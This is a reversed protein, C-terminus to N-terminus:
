LSYKVHLGIYFNRGNGPYFYRPQNGGFGVANILVSQAYNTDFINNIGVNFQTELIPSLKPTFYIKTHFINYADSYVTNADDLPIEAVYNHNLYWGFKHLHQLSFGTNLRHKPVGTLANGNYNIGDNVFENFQHLSLTYNAYPQLDWKPALTLNSKLDLEIGKHTTKGANKGIFQDEGVREAVLLNEVKMLYANASLHIRKKLLSQQLGIEYNWGTEQAIDPNIVGDPTLTEELNPNSFGRSVNAFISGNTLTYQLGFSPNFIPDFKREASSNTGDTVFRDNFDYSTINVSLGVQATLKDSLPYNYNAFGFWQTRFEKNESLKDGQLSGNDNNERYLNEFTEWFYEDKYLETGFSFNGGLAKGKFVSRLGFGSTFEDLINFPRPEFHDLYTYFISTSNTLMPNFSYTYNVGALTYKNAEFGQAANWNAAAIEPNNEFDTKNISSPIQAVYDIYNVLVDLKSKKNLLVGLNVLIGDRDFSNNQRYGNTGISNYSVNLHLKDTQQSLSINEKLLQYSGLTTSSKLESNGANPAKSNLIIAGGLNAGYSGGKPGKIVEIHGLTALDYAEISSFGSGNTVPINNYYLRLKDTGYLTRAGIGRMTIRNTNLAGSLVHVGPIQNLVQPADLPGFADIQASTISSSPTIGYANKITLSKSLIVEDLFTISDQQASLQQGTFLLVVIPLIWPFYVKM